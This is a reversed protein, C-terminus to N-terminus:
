ENSEGEPHEETYTHYLRAGGNECYEVARMVDDIVQDVTLDDDEDIYIEFHLTKAIKPLAM